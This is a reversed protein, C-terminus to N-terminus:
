LKKVYRDQWGDRVGVGRQSWGLQIGEVNAKSMNRVVVIILLLGIIILFSLVILLRRLVKAEYSKERKPTNLVFSLLSNDKNTNKM